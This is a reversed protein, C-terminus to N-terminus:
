SFEYLALEYGEEDIITERDGYDRRKECSLNKRGWGRAMKMFDDRPYQLGYEDVIVANSEDLFTAWGRVSQIQIDDETLRYGRWAFPWGASRKGIHYEIESRGCHECPFPRAYFNTGM